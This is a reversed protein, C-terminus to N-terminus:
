VLRSVYRKDDKAIAASSIIKSIGEIPTCDTDLDFRGIMGFDQATSRGNGHLKMRLTARGLPIVFMSAVVRRFLIWARWRKYSAPNSFPNMDDRFPSPYQVTQNEDVFRMCKLLDNPDSPIANPIRLSMNYTSMAIERSMWTNRAMVSSWLYAGHQTFRNYKESQEAGGQAIHGYQSPQCLNLYGNRRTIVEKSYFVLVIRFQVIDKPKGHLGWIKALLEKTLDEWQKRTTYTRSGGHVGLGTFWVIVIDDLIEIV